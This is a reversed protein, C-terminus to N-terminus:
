VDSNRLCLDAPCPSAHTIFTRRLIIVGEFDAGAGAKQFGSCTAPLATSVHLMSLNGRNAYHQYLEDLPFAIMWTQWGITDEVPMRSPPAVPHSPLHCSRFTRATPSGVCHLLPQLDPEAGQEEYRSSFHYVLSNLSISWNSHGVPCLNFVSRYLSITENLDANTGLKLLRPNTAHHAQHDLLCLQLASYGLILVEELVWSPLARHDLRRRSALCTGRRDQVGTLTHCHTATITRTHLRTSPVHSQRIARSAPRVRRPPMPAHYFSVSVVASAVSVILVRRSVALVRLEGTSGSFYGLIRPLAFDRVSSGCASPFAVSACLFPCSCRLVPPSRRYSIACVYPPHGRASADVTCVSTCLTSYLRFRSLVRAFVDFRTLHPRPRM